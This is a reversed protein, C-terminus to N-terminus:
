PVEGHRCGRLAARARIVAGPDLESEAAFALLLREDGALHDLVGLLFHPTDAAERISQTTLGTCDLFSELRPADAAIFHLAAIAITEAQAQGESHQLPLAKRIM